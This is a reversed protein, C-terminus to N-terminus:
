VTLGLCKQATRVQLTGTGLQERQWHASRAIGFIKRDDDRPEHHFPVLTKVKWELALNVAMTYSTHGFDFKSFSEERQQFERDAVESDTAYTVSKGHVTIKHVFPGGPHDMRKLRTEANGIRANDGQLYVFHLEAQMANITVPFHPPRM